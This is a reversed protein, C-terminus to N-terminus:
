RESAPTLVAAGLPGLELEGEVTAGSLLDIGSLGSVRAPADAHNLLFLHRGRRTAEVGAPTEHVPRVGAADLVLGLASPLHCSFYWGVGDGHANRTIAPRGALPGAGYSAVPEATTVELWESWLTAAGPGSVPLSADDAAKVPVSADAAAMVPVSADAADKVPVSADAAAKVPVSANDAATIPVSADDPVPWFEDVIVGLAERLPAPYGGLHIHDHEDVIGSFFGCALHGGDAVFRTLRAAAESRLMYLNPALVVKYRSLDASPPVFDVAINRLWLERYWSSVLAKLDLRTSPHDEQELAWWSDWSLVIAVSAESVSGAVPGLKALEAGFRVTEAWGRSSTGGHPLLASHFKEAGARSARWQFYMVGDAGRAVTQLSWLRHLGPRKPVNVPRWSVASPAQEMLLWPRGGKLSRMLDYNMAASIHAEPDAPDPYADDSVFDERSAWEWYDLPKFMSMFNTTVPVGPSVEDLVDKEGQYCALLADSCFRRWDLTQTPNVPGPADRPPEIEEWAGYRQSWFATGWASNLVDLSGYRARLWRRFDSASEACFCETVHDGYENHIHWLALAPHDRYREAIRRALTVAAERYVPSSPCYHQRSGFELRVGDSRVPLVDPHARVLWAPPSATATALDVAIGQGHLLDLLRDLWGFDWSTPGPQLRAWSFVGVTVLNVGAEKMLAADEAWVEEPWQEPNYDGGYLLGPVRTLRGTASM